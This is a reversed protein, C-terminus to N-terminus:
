GRLRRNEAIDAAKTKLFADPDVNLMKCIELELATITPQEPAYPIVTTLERNLAPIFLNPKNTLGASCLKAIRNTTREYIFVPSIYRYAKAEILQRGQVTWEVAAWIAGYPNMTLRKIWGVAPAPDGNPAKNQTSHELDIPLCVGAQNFAKIIEGPQDHLWSRGDRGTITGERPILEIDSPAKGSSDSPIELTYDQNILNV